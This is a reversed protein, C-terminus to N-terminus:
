IWDLPGSGACCKSAHTVSLASGRARNQQVMVLAAHMCRGSEKPALCFVCEIPQRVEFVEALTPLEDDDSVRWPLAADTPKGEETNFFRALQGAACAPSCSAAAGSGRRQEAAAAADEEASSDSREVPLLQKFDQLTMDCIRRLAPQAGLQPVTVAYDDHWIIPIGDATVQLWRPPTLGCPSYTWPLASSVAKIHQVYRSM